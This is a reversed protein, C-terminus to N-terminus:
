YCQSSHLVKRICLDICCRLIRSGGINLWEYVVMTRYSISNYWNARHRHAKLCEYQVSSSRRVRHAYVISRFPISYPYRTGGSHAYAM